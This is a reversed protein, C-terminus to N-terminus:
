RSRPASCHRAGGGPTPAKRWGRSGSSSTEDLLQQVEAVPIERPPGADGTELVLGRTQGARLAVSAHFDGTDTTQVKALHEDDPERVARMTMTGAASRFVGGNTSVEAEHTARGYDFRPALDVDFTMQGRVCRLMRVLRHRDTAVKGSIPMFDYIEGVGADSLFRTILIATDPLYMQKTDFAGGSPRVRFHGGRDKDLLAGFISPSDFRPACFWDISGDTTVLAATQLDGILGHNAILPYDDM